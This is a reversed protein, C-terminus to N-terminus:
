LYGLFERSGAKIFSIQIGMRQNKKPKKLPEDVIIEATETDLYVAQADFPVLYFEGDQYDVKLKNKSIKPTNYLAYDTPYLGIIDYIINELYYRVNLKWGGEGSAIAKKSFHDRLHEKMQNEFLEIFLEKNTKKMLAEM